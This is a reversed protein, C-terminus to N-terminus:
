VNQICWFQSFPVGSSFFLYVILKWDITLNTSIFLRITKAFFLIFLLVEIHSYGRKKPAHSVLTIKNRMVQLQSQLTRSKAVRTQTIGNPTMAWLSPVGTLMTCKVGNPLIINCILAQLSQPIDHSWTVHWLWLVIHMSNPFHLLNSCFVRVSFKPDHWFCIAYGTGLCSGLRRKKEGNGTEQDNSKPILPILKERILSSSDLVKHQKKKVIRVNSLNFIGRFKMLLEGRFKWSPQFVIGFGKPNWDTKPKNSSNFKTKIFLLCPNM